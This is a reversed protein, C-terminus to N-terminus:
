DALWDTLSDTLENCPVAGQQVGNLEWINIRDPLQVALRNRYL